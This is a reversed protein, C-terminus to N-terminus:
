EAEEAIKALVPLWQRAVDPQIYIMINSGAMILQHGSLQARNGTAELDGAMISANVSGINKSM